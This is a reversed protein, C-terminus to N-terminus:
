VYIYIIKKLYFFMYIFLLFVVFKMFQSTESYIESLYSMM